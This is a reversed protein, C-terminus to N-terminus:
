QRSAMPPKRLAARGTVGAVNPPMRATDSGLLQRVIDGVDQRLTPSYGVQLDHVNGRQDIIVLTPFGPVGYKNPLDQGVKLTAYNLGAKEVVFQADAADTDTNMGLVVVPQGQFDAVLGKIQPMARICWGCGRYWFDLIVIKGRYEKLSHLQGELNRAEWDAAPHGVIEAWRNADHISRAALDDHSKLQQDLQRKVIPVSAAQRAEVLLAKAEDLLKKSSNQDRSAQRIREKYTRDAQFYHEAQKSLQKMWQADRDEASLLEATGNGKGKFGWGETDEHREKTVLGRKSDFTVTRMHTRLRVEDTLSKRREELIWAGTKTESHSVVRFSSRGGENEDISEWVSAVEQRNAPLRPFLYTPDIGATLSPNPVFRGDSFIDCYVLPSESAPRDKGDRRFSETTRIVVRHSGDDNKRVVWIKWEKHAEFRGGEFKFDNSSAYMIERGVELRYRPLAIDPDAAVAVPMQSASALGALLVVFVHWSPISRAM